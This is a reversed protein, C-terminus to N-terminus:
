ERQTDSPLPSSSGEALSSPWGIRVADLALNRLQGSTLRYRKCSHDGEGVILEAVGPEPEVIYVVPPPTVAEVPALMLVSYHGHHTGELADTVTWGKAKWEEVKDHVIYRFDGDFM